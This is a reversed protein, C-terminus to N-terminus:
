MLLSLFIYFATQHSLLYLVLGALRADPCFQSRCAVGSVCWLCACDLLLLLLKLLHENVRPTSVPEPLTFHPVSQKSLSQPFFLWLFSSELATAPNWLIGAFTWAASSFLNHKYTHEYRHTTCMHMCVYMHNGRTNKKLNVKHTHTCQHQTWVCLLLEDSGM